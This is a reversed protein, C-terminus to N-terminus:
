KITKRKFLIEPALFIEWLNPESTTRKSFWASTGLVWITAWLSRCRWNWTIQYWRKVETLMLCVTLACIYTWTFYEYVFFYFLCMCYGGLISLEMSGSRTPEELSSFKSPFMFSTIIGLCWNVQHTCKVSAVHLIDCLARFGFSTLKNNMSWIWCLCGTDM